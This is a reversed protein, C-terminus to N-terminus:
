PLRRLLTARLALALVALALGIAVALEYYERYEYFQTGELETRELRDIEGYIARLGDRDTARFYAGGTLDAVSKLLEEDISVPVQVLPNGADNSAM